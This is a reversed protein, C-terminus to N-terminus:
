LINLLILLLLSTVNKLHPVDKRKLFKISACLIIFSSFFFVVTFFCVEAFYEVICNCACMPALLKELILFLVLKMMRLLKEFLREVLFGLFIMCFRGCISFDIGVGVEM